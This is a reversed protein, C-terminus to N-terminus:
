YLVQNTQSSKKKKLMDLMVKTKTVVFAEIRNTMPKRKTEVNPSYLTEISESKVSRELRIRMLVLCPKLAGTYNSKKCMLLM